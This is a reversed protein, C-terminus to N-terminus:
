GHLRGLDERVREPEEALPMNREDLVGDLEGPEDARLQWFLPELTEPAPGPEQILELTTREAAPSSLADVLVRAIMTRAIGGDAPTGTRRPDGQLFMPRDEGPGNADFWGPRVITYPHGSARLLRESRRKWVGVSGFATYADPNTAAILTMLAIRAARGDLVELVNRVAGYDLEEAGPGGSTGHTFVIADIEQLAARLSELRTADGVVVDAGEPLNREQGAGRTLVRVAHGKRLAYEVVHRGVTGTGGIALISQPHETM